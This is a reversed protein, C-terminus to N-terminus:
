NMKQCPQVHKCIKPSLSLFVVPEQKEPKVDTVHSWFSIEWLCPFILFRYHCPWLSYNFFSLLFLQYMREVRGIVLSVVMFLVTM